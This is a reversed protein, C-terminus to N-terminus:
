NVIEHGSWVVGSRVRREHNPSFQRPNTNPQDSMWHRKKPNLSWQSSVKMTVWNTCTMFGPHFPHLHSSTEHWLSSQDNVVPLRRRINSLLNSVPDTDTTVQNSVVWIWLAAQTEMSNLGRLRTLMTYRSKRKCSVKILWQLTVMKMKKHHQVKVEISHKTSYLM